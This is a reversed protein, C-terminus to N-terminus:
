SLVIGGGVYIRTMLFSVLSAVLDHRNPIIKPFIAPSPAHKLFKFVCSFNQFRGPKM